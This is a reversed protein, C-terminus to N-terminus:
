CREIIVKELQTQEEEFDKRLKEFVPLLKPLLEPDAEEVAAIMVEVMNKVAEGRNSFLPKSEVDEAYGLDSKFQAEKRLCDNVGRLASVANKRDGRNLCRDHLSWFAAKVRDYEHFIERIAEQGRSVQMIKPMWDARRSWDAWITEPAVGFEKSLAKLRQETLTIGRHKLDILAIRRKYVQQIM